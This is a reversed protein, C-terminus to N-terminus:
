NVKDTNNMYLQKSHSITMKPSKQQSSQNSQNLQSCLLMDQIWNNRSRSACHTESTGFEGNSVRIRTTTLKKKELCKCQQMWMSMIFQRRQHTYTYSRLTELCVSFMSIAWSFSWPMSRNLGSNWMCKVKSFRLLMIILKFDLVSLKSM